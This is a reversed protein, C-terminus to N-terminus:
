ILPVGDYFIQEQAHPKIENPMGNARIDKTVGSSTVNQTSTSTSSHYMMKNEFHQIM